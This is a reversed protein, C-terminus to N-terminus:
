NNLDNVLGTGSYAMSRGPLNPWSTDYDIRAMQTGSNESIIEDITNTLTFGSYVYNAVYGGNIAYDMNRGLVLYGYAPVMLGGTNNIQHYNSGSDKIVWGNIDVASNGNNYLELWEGYTDSVTAPDIM